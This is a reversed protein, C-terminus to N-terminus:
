NASLSVTGADFRRAYVGYHGVAGDSVGVVMDTGVWSSLWAPAASRADYCVYVEARTDVDFRVSLGPNSGDAAETQILTGGALAPPIATITEAGDTHYRAGTTLPVAQYDAPILATVTLGLAPCPAWLWIALFGVLRNQPQFSPDM